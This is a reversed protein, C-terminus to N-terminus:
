CEGAACIWFNGVILRTSQISNVLRAPVLGLCVTIQLWHGARYIRYLSSQQGPLLLLKCLVADLLRYAIRHLRYVICHLWSECVQCPGSNLVLLTCHIWGVWSCPFTWQCPTQLVAILIPEVSPVVLCNDMRWCVSTTHWQYQLWWPRSLAHLISFQYYVQYAEWPYWLLM